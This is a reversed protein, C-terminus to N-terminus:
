NGGLIISPEKYIKCIGLDNIETYFQVRNDVKIINWAEVMEDSWYIDDFIVVSHTSLHNYISDFYSLTPTKRHNGDIYAFDIQGLEGLIDELVYDFNGNRQEVRHDIGVNEWLRKSYPFLEENMEITTLKGEGNLELAAAQYAASIGFNTGLELVVKPKLYRIIDLFFKGKLVSSSSKRCFSSVTRGDINNLPDHCNLLIGRQYEIKAIYDDRKKNFLFNEWNEKFLTLSYYDFKLVTLQSSVGMKLLQFEIENQFASCIFLIDSEPNLELIEQPNRVKVGLIIEEWKKEDNDFFGMVDMGIQRIYQVVKRGSEGAGFIYINQKNTLFSSNKKFEYFDLTKLM